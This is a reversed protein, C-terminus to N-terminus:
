KFDNVVRAEIEAMNEEAPSKIKLKIGDVNM